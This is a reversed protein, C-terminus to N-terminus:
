FNEKFSNTGTLQSTIHTIFAYQDRKREKDRESM